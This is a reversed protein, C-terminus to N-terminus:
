KTASPAAVPPTANALADLRAAIAKAMKDDLAANLTGEAVSSGLLDNFDRSARVLRLSAEAITGQMQADGPTDNPYFFGGGGYFGIAGHSLVVHRISANCASSDIPTKGAAPVLFMHLHLVSGEADALTDAPDTLRSLPIDTLFLDATNPDTSRYVGTQFAPALFAGAPSNISRLTLQTARPAWTCGTLGLVFVAGILFLVRM